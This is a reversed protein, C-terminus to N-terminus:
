ITKDAHVATGSNYEDTEFSKELEEYNEEWDNEYQAKIEEAMKKFGGKPYDLMLYLITEEKDNDEASNFCRNLTIYTDYGFQKQILFLRDCVNREKEKYGLYVSTVERDQWYDRSTGGPSYFPLRDIEEFLYGNWEIVNGKPAKDILGKLLTTKAEYNAEKIYKAKLGTIILDAIVDQALEKRLTDIATKTGIENVILDLVGDYGEEALLVGFKIPDEQLEKIKDMKLKKVTKNKEVEIPEGERIAVRSIYVGYLDEYSQLNPHIENCM